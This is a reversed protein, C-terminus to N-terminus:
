FLENYFKLFMYFLLRKANESKLGVLGGSICILLTKSTTPVWILRYSQWKRAYSQWRSHGIAGFQAWSTGFQALMPGVQPGLPGLNPRSAAGVPRNRGEQVEHGRGVADLARRTGRGPWTPARFGGFVYAPRANKANGCEGDPGRKPAMKLCKQLEQPSATQSVSFLPTRLPEQSTKASCSTTTSTLPPLYVLEASHKGRAENPLNLVSRM